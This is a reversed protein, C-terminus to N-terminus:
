GLDLVEEELDDPVSFHWEAHVICHRKDIHKIQLKRETGGDFYLQFKIRRHDDYVTCYGPKPYQTSQTRMEMDGSAAELFLAKPIEVLEYHYFGPTRLKRLSFIRDYANMHRFFQDRLGDLDDPDDGWDGSGLEMFKSIHLKEPRISADAQSKLSIRQGNVTIDHGPNGRPARKAKVGCFNCVRELAFEFKDKTFAEASFCHHIKLTDGFERLVCDSVLDSSPNRTFQHPRQFEAVINEIAGLQSESLTGLRSAVAAIREKSM